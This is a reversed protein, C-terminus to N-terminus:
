EEALNVECVNGNRIAQQLRGFGMGVESRRMGGESDKQTAVCVNLVTDGSGAHERPDSVRWYRLM